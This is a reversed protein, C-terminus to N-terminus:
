AEDRGTGGGRLVSVYLRMVLTIVARRNTDEPSREPALDADSM